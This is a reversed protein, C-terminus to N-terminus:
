TGGGGGGGIFGDMFGILGNLKDSAEELNREIHTMRKEHLEMGAHMVVMLERMELTLARIADLEQAQLKQVEAHHRELAAMVVLTDKLSAIEKEFDM